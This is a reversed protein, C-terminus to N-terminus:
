SDSMQSLIEGRVLFKDKTNLIEGSVLFRKKISLSDVSQSLINTLSDRRQSLIEERFVFRM